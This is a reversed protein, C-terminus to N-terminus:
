INEVNCKKIARNNCLFRKAYVFKSTWCICINIIFSQSDNSDIFFEFKFEFIWKISIQSNLYIRYKNLKSYNYLINIYVCFHYNAIQELNIMNYINNFNERLAM